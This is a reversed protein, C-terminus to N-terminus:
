VGYVSHYLRPVLREERHTYLIITEDIIQPMEIIHRHGVVAPNSWDVGYCTQMISLSGICGSFASLDLSSPQWASLDLELVAGDKLDGSLYMTLEGDSQISESKPKAIKKLKKRLKRWFGM